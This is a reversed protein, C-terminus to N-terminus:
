TLSHTSRQLHRHLRVAQCSNTHNLVHTTAIMCLKNELSPRVDLLTIFICGSYQAADLSGTLVGRTEFMLDDISFSPILTNTGAHLINSDAMSQRHHGGAMRCHGWDFLVISRQVQHVFVHQGSRPVAYKIGPEGQVGRQIIYADVLLRLAGSEQRLPLLPRSHARQAAKADGLAAYHRNSVM